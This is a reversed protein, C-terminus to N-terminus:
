RLNYIENTDKNNKKLSPAHLTNIAFSGSSGILSVPFLYIKCTMIVYQTKQVRQASQNRQTKACVTGEERGSDQGMEHDVSKKSGQRGQMHEQLQRRREREAEKHADQIRHGVTDGADAVTGLIFHCQVFSYHSSRRPVLSKWVSLHELSNTLAGPVLILATHHM